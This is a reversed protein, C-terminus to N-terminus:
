AKDGVVFSTEPALRAERFRIPQFFSGKGEGLPKLGLRAFREAIYRAALEGGPQGTGRGEMEKSSLAATVEKITEVRVRAALEREAESLVPAAKAATAQSQRGLAPAALLASALLLPALRRWGERRRAKLEFL